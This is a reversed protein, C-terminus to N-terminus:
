HGNWGARTLPAKVVHASVNDLSKQFSLAPHSKLADMFKLPLVVKVGEM